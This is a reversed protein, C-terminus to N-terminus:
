QIADPNVQENGRYLKGDWWQLHGDVYVVNGGANGHNDDVDYIESQGAKDSDWVLRLGSASKVQTIKLLRRTTIFSNYDYQFEKSLDTPNSRSPCHFVKTNRTYNHRILLNLQEDLLVPGNAKPVDCPPLLDDNDRAYTICLKHIEKLNNACAIRNAKERLNTIAPLLMAALIGIIVIVVLLEVLTFGRNGPVQRVRNRMALADIYWAPELRGAEKGAGRPSDGRGLIPKVVPPLRHIFAAGSVVCSFLSQL